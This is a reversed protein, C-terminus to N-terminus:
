GVRTGNRQDCTRNRELYNDNRMGNYNQAEDLFLTSKM